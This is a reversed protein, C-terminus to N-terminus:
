ESRLWDRFPHMDIESEDRSLVGEISDEIKEFEEVPNDAKTVLLLWRRRAMEESDAVEL